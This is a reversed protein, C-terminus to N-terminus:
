KICWAQYVPMHPWEKIGAASSMLILSKDDDSEQAQRLYVAAIRAFYLTGLLNVDLTRQDPIKQSGHASDKIPDKMLCVQKIGELDLEPDIWNGIDPVGANSIACDIRGFIELATDFLKLLDGYKTVDTKVFKVTSSSLKQVLKEAAVIQIDGFVVKAGM